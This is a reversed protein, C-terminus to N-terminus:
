GGFFFSALSTTEPSTFLSYSDEYILWVSAAIGWLPFIFWSCNSLGVVLFLDRPSHGVHRGAHFFQFFYVATGYFMQWFMAIGLIGLVRAPLIEYTMGFAFVVGPILTSIGNCTDINFGFSGRRSYGPDFLAYVSWIGTWRDLSLASQIPIRQLFLENARELERGRFHSRTAHYEDRIRDGYKLLGIEWFNVLLNVVLFFVLGAQHVSFASHVNWHLQLHFATAGVVFAIIWVWAPAAFSSDTADVTGSSAVTGETM